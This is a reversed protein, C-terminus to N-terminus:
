LIDAINLYSLVPISFNKSFLDMCLGTTCFPTMFDSSLEKLIFTKLTNKEYINLTFFFFFILLNCSVGYFLLHCMVCKLLCYEIWVSLGKDLYKLYIKSRVIIIAESFTQVADWFIVLM